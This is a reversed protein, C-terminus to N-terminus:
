FVTNNDNSKPQYAGEDKDMKERIGNILSYKPSVYLAINQVKQNM